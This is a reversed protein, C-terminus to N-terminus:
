SYKEQIRQMTEECCEVWAQMNILSVAGGNERRKREDEFIEDKAEIYHSLGRQLCDLVVMQILAGHKSYGTMLHSMFEDNTMDKIDIPSKM